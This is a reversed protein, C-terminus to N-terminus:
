PDICVRRGSGFIMSVVGGPDQRSLRAVADEDRLAALLPQPSWPRQRAAREPSRLLEISVV